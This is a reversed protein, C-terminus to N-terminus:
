SEEEAMFMGRQKLVKEILFVIGVFVYGVILSVAVMLTWMVGIFFAEEISNNELFTRMIFDLNAVRLVGWILLVASSRLDVFLAPIGMSCGLLVPSLLFMSRVENANKGRSWFLLVVVMWTYLPGWIFASLSFSVVIGFFFGPLGGLMTWDIGIAYAFFFLAGGLILVLYPLSLSIFYFTKRKM